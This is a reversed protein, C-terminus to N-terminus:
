MYECESVRESGTEGVSERTRDKGVMCGKRERLRSEKAGSDCGDWGMVCM